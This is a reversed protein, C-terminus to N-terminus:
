PLNAMLHKIERLTITSPQAYGDLTKPDFIGIKQMHVEIFLVNGFKNIRNIKAKHKLFRLDFLFSQTTQLAAAIL